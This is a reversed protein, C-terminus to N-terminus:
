VDPLARSVAVVVVLVVHAVVAVPVHVADLQVKVKAGSFETCESTSVGVQEGGVTTFDVWGAKRTSATCSDVCGQTNLEVNRDTVIAVQGQSVQPLVREIRVNKVCHLN